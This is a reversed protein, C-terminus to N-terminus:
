LFLAERFENKLKFGYGKAIIKTLVNEVRKRAAPGSVKFRDRLKQPVTAMPDLGQRNAEMILDFVVPYPMVLASGFAEAQWEGSDFVHLNQKSKNRAARGSLIIDSHLFVHGLEHGISFLVRGGKDVNRMASDRLYITRDPISVEADHKADMESDSVYEVNYGYVKIFDIELIDAISLKGSLYDLFREKSLLSTLFGMARRDIDIYSLGPAKFDNIM